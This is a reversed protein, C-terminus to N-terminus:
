LPCSVFSQTFPSLSSKCFCSFNHDGGPLYGMAVIVYCSIKKQVYSVLFM